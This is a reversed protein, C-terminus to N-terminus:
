VNVHLEYGSLTDCALNPLNINACTLPTLKKIKFRLTLEV